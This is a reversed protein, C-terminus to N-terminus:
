DCGLLLLLFSVCSSDTSNKLFSLLNVTYIFELSFIKGAVFVAGHACEIELVTCVAKPSNPPCPFQRCFLIFKIAVMKWVHYQVVYSCRDANDSVCM